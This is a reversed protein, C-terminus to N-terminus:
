STEEISKNNYIEMDLEKMIKGSVVGTVMSGSVNLATRAMDILPEIAILLGVLGVPFGLASFVTLAAFTAGGGVGAIGFSSLTTILILKVLFGPSMPNIGLTPAVMVALMAPYIGACGNQGISVGLSASLNAVGESVGLKDVQTKINLPLAGASTRSTFAFILVSASKKFYTIPNLKFIMLIISHVIFMILIAVYSAVVFKMLGLIQSFKSTSVMTTMLALVGFPTLRLVLTVMRMVVDHLANLFGIFIEASKSRKKKIGLTAVGIFGAFFVVSLTPSDGQGALSYFPNTPIIDIIQEQVPKQQLNTLKEELEEGRKIETDGTQLGEVSLGFTNATTAGVLASVATTLLLVILITGTLKGLNSSKQNIIACTISVFILPMVIMKLLRVYGSGIVNFWNNAGEIVPSGVGFIIQLIAGYIIGVILGTLVRATFSYHKKQMWFISGILIAMVIINLIILLTDNM